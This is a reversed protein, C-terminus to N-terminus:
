WLGGCRRSRHEARIKAKKTFYEADTILDVRCQHALENMRMICRCKFRTVWYYEESLSAQAMSWTHRHTKDNQQQRDHFARPERHSRRHYQGILMRSTSFARVSIKQSKLDEVLFDHLANCSAPCGGLAAPKRIDVAEGGIIAVEGPVETLPEPKRRLIYKSM